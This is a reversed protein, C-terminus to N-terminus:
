ITRCAISCDTFPAILMYNLSICVDDDVSALSTLKPFILVSYVPIAQFATGSQSEYMIYQQYPDRYYRGGATGSQKWAYHVPLEEVKHNRPPPHCFPYPLSKHSWQFLVFNMVPHRIVVGKSSPLIWLPTAIRSTLDFFLLHSLCVLCNPPAPWLLSSLFLPTWKLCVKQWLIACQSKKFGCIDPIKCIKM